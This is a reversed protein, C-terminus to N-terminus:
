TFNAHPQESLVQKASNNASQPPAFGSDPQLRLLVNRLLCWPLSFLYACALDLGSVRYFADRRLGRAFARFFAPQRLGISATAAGRSIRFSALVEPEIFADGQKLIASWLYLDSLYANDPDCVGTQPLAERRFLGVAPEGIINSGVRLCKKVLAPGSVRGRIWGRRGGFVKKGAANIVERNCIALCVSANSQEELVAVQRELCRPHLLDDECLLKVYKGKALSLVRNWNPGLGLNVPNRVLRIRPDAFKEIISVTADSSHDDSLLLEFDKLSQALVSELTSAIFRAGNYCPICVSVLPQSSM